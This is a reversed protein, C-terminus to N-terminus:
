SSADRQRAMDRLQDDLQEDTLASFDVFALRRRLRPAVDRLFQRRRLDGRGEDVLRALAQALRTNGAISRREIIQNLDSEGLTRLLSLDPNGDTGPRVFTLANWWLRALMHRTLDSAIWREPNNRGFRWQVLDPAAVLALFNWVGRHAAEVTTVDMSRYVVAAAARDFAVRASDDATNPYGFEAATSRLEAVLEMVAERGVRTGGTAAFTTRGLDVRASRQLQVVTGAGLGGLLVRAYSAPIRPWLQTM